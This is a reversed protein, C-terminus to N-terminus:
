RPFEGQYGRYYNMVRAVYAQTEPYPPIGAHRDVAGPGANYAALALSVDGFRDLMQRLYLVGGQVNDHPRLPARVGLERATAPMLQMLGQAGVRSVADVDFGSEAAIVAKVLAPEVGYSRATRAILGDFDRRDPTEERPSPSIVFGEPSWLQVAQYRSDFPVDSFHVVGRADIFRYLGGASAASALMAAAVFGAALAARARVVRGIKHGSQTCGSSMSDIVGLSANHGDGGQIM